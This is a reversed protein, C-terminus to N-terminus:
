NLLNKLLEPRIEHGGEFNIIEANEGFLLEIKEREFKLRTENLYKDTNGYIFTIRTKKADIFEVQKANIENPIGGAYLVLKSCNIQKFIMWRMAISVGQSFGFLILNINSPIKISDYVADLYSLLNETEQTTDEKTLWSAGVHKFDDKLYYKSPAQPCIIFNEKPNLNKFHKLFYRSLYGMGHFVFWVNKTEENLENLTEFSNKHVYSVQHKNLAM